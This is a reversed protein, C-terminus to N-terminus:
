KRTHIFAVPPRRHARPTPVCTRVARASNRTTNGRPDDSLAVASVGVDPFVLTKAEARAHARSSYVRFVDDSLKACGVFAGSRRSLAARTHTHTHTCFDTRIVRSEAATASSCLTQAFTIYVRQYVSLRRGRFGNTVCGSVGRGCRRAVFALSSCEVCVLAHTVRHTCM